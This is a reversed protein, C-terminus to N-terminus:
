RRAQVQPRAQQQRAMAERQRAARDIVATQQSSTDSPKASLQAALQRITTFQFLVAISIERALDAQLRRQVQAVMLSTGGVAFFSETAGVGCYGLVTEWAAAITRELDNAFIVPTTATTPAMVNPVPLARRDLKGSPTLPLNKIPVYLAPIMPEPLNALLFSRIEEAQPSPVKDSIFYAVLVKDTGRPLATVACDRIGPCKRLAAEVEGLEVRHGRVKVQSDARGLFEIAGEKGLQALDGTRYMRQGSILPDPLFREATLEDRKWYGQAVAAGSIYIEGTAGAVVPKLEGDLLHLTTHDIAYGIPPLTPWGAPDNPLTYATVVHTETPGYHNHLRVGPMKQFFSRIAESVQLQEGATIIDRLSSPVRGASVAAEALQQLAVFPLYLRHVTWANLYELLGEPDRRLEDKMLVLTGGEALTTFIEQFSVDFSLPAFQLVRDGPSLPLTRRHWQLLNALPGHPMVVGKPRGTSGSTYLLYALSELSAPGSQQQWVEATPFPLNDLCIVPVDAAPLLPLLSQHTIVASPSSDRLIFELREAPYSPDLAVYGAGTKLIALVAAVMEVSRSACIAIRSNVTAGHARLQTALRKAQANLDGYSIRAGEGEVAIAM